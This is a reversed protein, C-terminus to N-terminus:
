WGCCALYMTIVLASPCIDLWENIAHTFGFLGLWFWPLKIEQNKILLLSAAALIFFEDWLSLIYDM